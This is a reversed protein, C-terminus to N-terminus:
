SKENRGMKHEVHNDGQTTTRMDEIQTFSLWIRSKQVNRLTQRLDVPAPIVMEKLATLVHSPGIKSLKLFNQMYYVAILVAEVDNKPKKDDTFAKLAPKGAPM